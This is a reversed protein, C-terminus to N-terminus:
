SFGIELDIKQCEKNELNNLRRMHLYHYLEEIIRDNGHVLHILVTIHPACPRKLFCLHLHGILVSTIM